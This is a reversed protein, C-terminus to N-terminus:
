RRVRTKRHKSKSHRTKRKGGTAGKNLEIFSDHIICSTLRNKITEKNNTPDDLLDTFSKDNYLLKIKDLGFLIQLIGVNKTAIPIIKKILTLGFPVYTIANYVPIAKTELLKLIFGDGDLLFEQPKLLSEKMEDPTKSLFRREISDHIINIFDIYETRCLADLEEKTHYKGDSILTAM